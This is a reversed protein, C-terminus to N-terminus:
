SLIELLPYNICFDSQDVGKRSFKQVYDRFTLLDKEEQKEKMIELYVRYQDQLADFPIEVFRSSEGSHLMYSVLIDEKNM